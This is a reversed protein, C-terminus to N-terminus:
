KRYYWGQGLAYDLLCVGANLRHTKDCCCNCYYDLPGGLFLQKIKRLIVRHRKPKFTLAFSTKGIGPDGLTFNKLM